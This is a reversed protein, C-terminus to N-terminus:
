DGQLFVVVTYTKELFWFMPLPRDDIAATLINSELELM